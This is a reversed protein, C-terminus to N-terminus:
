KLIVGLNAIDKFFHTYSKSVCEAGNITVPTEAILALCSISMAIRHDNHSDTVGGKVIGGKIYMSNDSVKCEIGLKNLETIISEARNSEKHLLRNIGTIVSTGNAAAALAALPPFLDPYHTADFCFAKIKSKSVHITDNSINYNVNARKLADLVAIDGQVSKNNINNVIIDGNIAASVLLFAIGSWDCEISYDTPKYKQNGKILFEKYNSHKIKIGFSKIVDLTIDIYPISQLKDVYLISDNKAVPLAMLLGTLFQSSLSGDVNTTGGILPGKVTVPIYNNNSFVKVGLQELPEQINPLPRKLISGKGTISIPSNHLAAIPTFMRLSLGSEGCNLTDTVPSLGGNITIDKNNIDIIAGLAIAMDISRLADNCLCVNRLTSKGNALLAAAVARQMYSKSSPANITGSIYSKFITKNM